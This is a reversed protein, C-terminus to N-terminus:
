KLMKKINKRLNTEWRKDKAEKSKKREELYVQKIKKWKERLNM